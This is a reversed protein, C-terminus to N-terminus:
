GILWNTGDSVVPVKNAGGGAVVSMFTTATADTVFSRAGAGATAAATLGAVTTSQSKVYGSAFVNTVFLHRSQIDVFSAADGTKFDFATGNKVIAIGSADNTGLILRSFDTEGANLLSVIGSASSRLLSRGTWFLANTPGAAVSGGSTIQAGTALGGNLTLLNSAGITAQVSMTGANNSFNLVGDASSNIYSRLSGGPYIGAAAVYNAFSGLGAVFINRPRNSGAAGIDYSNDAISLFNGNTDIQWRNTNNTTLFLVSSGLTGIALNRPSGTGAWNAMLKGTNSSWELQLREYNSADTYTNYVAFAQASTGNRLALVNAADRALIVDSSAGLTIKSTNLIGKLDGSFYADSATVLGGAKDVTFRSSGAVQLDLLLSGAASATSTVNLKFGTFAVGANNWTQSLDLVPTSATVTQGSGILQTGFYINKPRNAGAAGINYTNDPAFLVDRSFPIGLVSTVKVTM